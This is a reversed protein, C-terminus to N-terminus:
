SGYIFDGIVERLEGSLPVQEYKIKSLKFIKKSISSEHKENLYYVRNVKKSALMKACEFCPFHTVYVNCGELDKESHLIANAEAHIVYPYKTDEKPLDPDNSWSLQSEDIGSVFGNYGMAVQRKNRDVIVCGVQTSPDKSRFSAVIAQLMFYENWNPVCRGEVIKNKKFFM